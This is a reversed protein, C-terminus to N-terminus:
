RIRNTLRWPAFTGWGCQCTEQECSTCVVKIPTRVVKRLSNAPKKSYAKIAPWYIHCRDLTQMNNIRGMQYYEEEIEVIVGIKTSSYRPDTVLDGIKFRMSM